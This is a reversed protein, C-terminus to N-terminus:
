INILINLNPEIFFNYFIDILACICFIGIICIVSYIIFLSGYYAVNINFCKNYLVVSIFNSTHLLYIGLTANGLINIIKNKFQLNLICYKEENDLIDIFFQKSLM